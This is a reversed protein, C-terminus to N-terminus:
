WVPLATQDYADGFRMYGLWALHGWFMFFIALYKMMDRNFFKYKPQEM